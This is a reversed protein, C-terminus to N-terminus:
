IIRWQNKVSVARLKKDPNVATPNGAAKLFELDFISDSYASVESLFIGLKEAMRLIHQAKDKGELIKKIRNFRKEEDVTYETAFYANVGLFKAFRQVLFSPSNSLIMTYHGLQQARKLRAFAPIYLSRNICEKVFKDIYKELLELPKGKLMKEFVSHHLEVLTMGFFRHRISYIFSHFLLSLPMVKEKCLFKLFGASSNGQILTHDLDFASLQM